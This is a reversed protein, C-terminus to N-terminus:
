VCKTNPSSCSPPFAYVNPTLYFPALLVFYFPYILTLIENPQNHFALVALSHSLAALPDLRFEHKQENQILLTFIYENTTSVPKYFMKASEVGRIIESIIYRPDKNTVSRLNFPGKHVKLGGLLIIM